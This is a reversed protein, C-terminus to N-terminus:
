KRPEEQIIWEGNQYEYVLNDKNNKWKDGNKPNNPVISM